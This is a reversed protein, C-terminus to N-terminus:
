ANIFERIQKRYAVILLFTYGAVLYFFIWKKMTKLWHNTPVEGDTLPTVVSVVSGSSNQSNEHSILREHLAILDNHLLQKQDTGGVHISNSVPKEVVFYERDRLSDLKCIETSTTSIADDLYKHAEVLKSKFYEHNNFYNLMSDQMGDLFRGRGMVKVEIAFRYNNIICVDTAPLMFYSDYVKDEYDVFETLCLSDKAYVYHPIIRYNNLMTVDKSGFYKFVDSKSLISIDNVFSSSQLVNNKFVITASYKPFFYFLGFSTLAGLVAFLIAWYWRRACFRFMFVISKWIYKVFWQWCIVIIGILDLEQNNNSNSEM